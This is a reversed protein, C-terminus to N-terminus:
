GLRVTLLVSSLVPAASSARLRSVCLFPCDRTGTRSKKEAKGCTWVWDLTRGTGGTLPYRPGKLAFSHVTGPELGAKKEAKGYTWVWELNRGTGGTLPYRPGKGDTFPGPSSAWDGGDLTKMPFASVDPPSLLILCPLSSPRRYWSDRIYPAALRGCKCCASEHSRGPYGNCSMKGSILLFM